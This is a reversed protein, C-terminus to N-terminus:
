DRKTHRAVSANAWFNAENVRAVAKRREDSDPCIQVILTALEKSAARLQEYVEPQKGTPPHYTFMNDLEQIEKEKM